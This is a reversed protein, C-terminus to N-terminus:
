ISDLIFTCPLIRVMKWGRLWFLCSPFNFNKREGLKEMRERNEIGRNPYRKERGLSRKSKSTYILSILDTLKYLFM